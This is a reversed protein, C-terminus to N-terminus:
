KIQNIIKSIEVELNKDKKLERKIKAVSHMVTTHDKGGFESGIKPLSEKLHVRCIYMGIQRPVAIKSLRKKSKIDEVTINYNNAVLQIVQDIKNKSIINKGIYDKLAEIALDLTIESGNMITAYAFVRTLAGELKRIDSTCNNAIYEKVETPVLKGIGQAEIKKDLIAMRLEFDPPLIDITLGWNFRTRLREELKKLDDPSRDSSIIIQKNQTHLENFTNFFEQQTKSAIELYQIDDIMLVDIDRYKRKFSDVAKFNSTENRRYINLFDDVFKESTVYLVKKNSTAMIYNGIAHMLHTKGLGSSGYIFLPNYMSGPKEAVALGIAKAFKNSNGSIFNDFTYRSDLGSEFIAENNEVPKTEKQPLVTKAEEETVYKFKFISGTVELFTEKIIDSYNETLHKKHVDFPVQVVAYEDNLDILKTDKFWTQYLVPKLKIEIKSLFVKWMSDLDM